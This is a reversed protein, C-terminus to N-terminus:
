ALMGGHGDYPTNPCLAGGGRASHLWVTSASVRECGWVFVDLLLVLVFVCVCVCWIRTRIASFVDHACCAEHSWRRMRWSTDLCLAQPAGLPAGGSQPRCREIHTCSKSSKERTRKECVWVCSQASPSARCREQPQGWLKGVGWSAFGLYDPFRRRVGRHLQRRVVGLVIAWYGHFLELSCAQSTRM